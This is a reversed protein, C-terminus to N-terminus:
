NATEQLLYYKFVWNGNVGTIGVGATNEVRFNINTTDVDAVARITVSGPTGALALLTAPVSTLKGQLSASGDGIPIDVFATFAPKIGLNHAVAATLTSGSTFPTPVAITATGSQVIKFVNNESNFILNDNTTTTADFGDKAVRLVPRTTNLSPKYGFFVNILNNADYSQIAGQQMVLTPKVNSGTRRYTTGVTEHSSRKLINDDANPTPNARDDSQKDIDHLAM